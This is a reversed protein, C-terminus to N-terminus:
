RGIGHKSRVAIEMEDAIIRQAEVSPHVGDFSVLSGFFGPADPHPCTDRLATELEAPTRAALLGQCKRIRNPDELYRAVIANTDIYIWGRAAVREQIAQNFAAVRATVAGRDAATLLYAAGPVCSIGAVAPDRLARASVLNGALPNPDGGPLLPSCSADVPRDRLWPRTDASQDLLWFFAGPQALPIILPDLVGLWVVDQPVAQAVISAVLQDLSAEFDGLPTMLDLDGGTVASLVDNQGLWVSILTPQANILAGLLSRSGFILRYIETLFVDYIDRGTPAPVTLVDGIRVGPVALSQNVRPLPLHLLACDTVRAGAVRDSTLLIPGALPAPCGPMRLRAFTFPANFRQAFLVSYANNQTSDNIGESEFGATISNGLAVYREFLPDEPTPQVPDRRCGSLLLPLVLAGLVATRSGLM